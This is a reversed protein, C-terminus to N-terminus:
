GNNGLSKYYTPKKHIAYRFHVPLEAGTVSKRIGWIAYDNRVNNWNPANSLASVLNNGTFYYTNQDTAPLM